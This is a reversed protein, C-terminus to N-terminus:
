FNLEKAIKRLATDIHDDCLYRNLTSFLFDEPLLGARRVYWLLDWRVRKDLDIYSGKNKLLYERNEKALSVFPVMAQKLIDYHEREMKM